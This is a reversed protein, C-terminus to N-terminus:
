PADTPLFWLKWARHVTKKKTEHITNLGQKQELQHNDSFYSQRTRSALIEATAFRIHTPHPAIAPIM